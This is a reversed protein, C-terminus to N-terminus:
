GGARVQAPTKTPTASNGFAWAEISGLPPVYTSAGQSSYTWTTAGQNAHYYAWYANAPPTDVCPDQAPGPKSDIRCVFALGWRATGEPTFGANRLATVGNAQSGAACRTEQTGGFAAFDVTVTVGSTGACPGPTGARAAVTQPASCDPVPVRTAPVSPALPLTRGALAPVAQVTAIVNPARSGPYFFAGRHEAPDTCGLQFGTLAAVARGPTGGYALLAQITLATSNPDSSQGPAALFGFGGDAARVAELSALTRQRGPREGYAALAQTAMGTSNTDPGRFTAPDAEPCAVATDARYAQWLGNACQQATLWALGRSVAADSRPVRAAKLATLAIGQRFAGDFTPAAAGFLGSPQQTATLRAVLDTGGFRRPDKGAAVAALIVYGIRGPNDDLGGAQAALFRVADASAARGVGASHLALVAYATNTVDPQEPTGLQGGGATLRGALYGAGYGAPTAAEAAAAPTLVGSLGIAAALALLGSRKRVRPFPSM